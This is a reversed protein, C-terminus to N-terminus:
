NILRDWDTGGFYGVGLGHVKQWSNLANMTNKGAIGDATGCNFGLSNMRNQIWRVIEGKTGYRISQKRAAALTKPGVIGDANVGILSQLQQIESFSNTSSQSSPFKTGRQFTKVNNNGTTEDGFWHGNSYTQATRIDVHCAGNMVGIGNFGVREAAEAIDYGNYRTGDQKVVVIDAALGLTHADHASGGVRVSHVSCRYGSNIIIMSAGMLSYLQELKQVLETLVKNGGCGCKCKFENSDFHESLRM